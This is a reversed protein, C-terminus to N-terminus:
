TKGAAFGFTFSDTGTGAVKLIDGTGATVTWGTADPTGMLIFAGPPLIITGTFATIWPNTGAGLTMNNTASQNWLMWSKIRAPTLLSGYQDVLVGSLDLNLTGATLALVNQYLANAQNAGVGDAYGIQPAINCGLNASPNVGVARRDNFTFNIGSSGDISM